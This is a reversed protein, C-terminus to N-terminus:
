HFVLLCQGWQTLKLALKAYVKSLAMIIILNVISASVSAVTSSQSQIIGSTDKYLIIIMLVRYMIVAVIFIIVLCM